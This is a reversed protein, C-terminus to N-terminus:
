AGHGARRSRGCLDDRARDGSFDNWAFRTSAKAATANKSRSRSPNRARRLRETVKKLSLRQFKRDALLRYQISQSPKKARKVNM